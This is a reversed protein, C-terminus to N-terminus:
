FVSETRGNNRAYEDLKLDDILKTRQEERKVNDVEWEQRHIVPNWEGRQKHGSIHGNLQRNSQAKFGCQPCHYPTLLDAILLPEGNHYLPTGSKLQPQNATLRESVAKKDDYFLHSFNYLTIGLLAYLLVKTATHEPIFAYCMNLAIAAGAYFLSKQKKGAAIFILIAIDIGVSYLWGFWPNKYRSNELYLYATHAVQPILLCAIAFFRTSSKTFLSQIRM